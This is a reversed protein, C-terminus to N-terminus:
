KSAVKINGFLDFSSDPMQDTIVNISEYEAFQVPYVKRFKDRTCLIYCQRSHQVACRKVISENLDPTTCGFEIDIGNTGMFGKTFHYQSLSEYAKGGVLAETTAKIEGGILIVHFGRRMLELAHSVANTVYTASKEQIYPIMAATTTGADIYVFDDEEILGAAYEGIIRKEEVHIEKRASVLEEKVSVSSEARVAGGFVKTLMGRNDLDTLDRRITSESTDLIDSLEQVTVSGKQSLLKLITDRRKEALM